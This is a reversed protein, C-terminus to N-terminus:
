CRDGGLALKRMMGLGTTEWRWNRENWVIDKAAKRYIMDQSFLTYLVDDGEIKAVVGIGGNVNGFVALRDGVALHPSNEQFEM